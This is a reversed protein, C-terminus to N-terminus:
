PATNPWRRKFLHEMEGVENRGRQYGRRAPTPRSGTNRPLRARSEVHVDHSARLVGSTGNQAAALTSVATTRARHRGGSHTRDSTGMASPESRLEV